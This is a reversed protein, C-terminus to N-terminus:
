YVLILPSLRHWSSTRSTQLSGTGTSCIAPTSPRSGNAAGGARASLSHIFNHGAKGINVTRFEGAWDYVDPFVLHHTAKWHDADFTRPVLDPRAILAAARVATLRRKANFWSRARIPNATYQRM